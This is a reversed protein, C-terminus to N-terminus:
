TRKPSGRVPARAMDLGTHGFSVPIDVPRVGALPAGRAVRGGRPVGGSRVPQHKWGRGRPATRSLPRARCPDRVFARVLASGTEGALSVEAAGDATDSHALQSPRTQGVGAQRVNRSPTEPICGSTIRSM